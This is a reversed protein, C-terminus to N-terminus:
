RGVSSIAKLIVNIQSTIDPFIEGLMKLVEPNEEFYMRGYQAFTEKPLKLKKQWYGKKYHGYGLDIRTNSMGHLIDSIGRYEVKLRGKKEFAEPYSLYLM